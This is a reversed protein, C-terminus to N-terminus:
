DVRVTDTLDPDEMAGLHGREARRWGRGMEICNRPWRM